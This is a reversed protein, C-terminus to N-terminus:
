GEENEWLLGLQPMKNWVMTLHDNASENKTHIDLVEFVAFKTSDLLRTGFAQFLIVWHAPFTPNLWCFVVSWRKLGKFSITVDCELILSININNRPRLPYSPSSWSSDM